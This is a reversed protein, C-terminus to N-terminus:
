TFFAAVSFCQTDIDRSAVTKNNKIDVSTVHRREATSPAHFNQSAIPAPVPSTSMRRQYQHRMLAQDSILEISADNAIEAIHKWSTGPRQDGASSGRFSETIMSMVTAKLVTTQNDTVNM